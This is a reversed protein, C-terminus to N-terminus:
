NRGESQDTNYAHKWGEKIRDNTDLDTSITRLVFKNKHYIGNVLYSPFMTAKPSLLTALSVAVKNLTDDFPNENQKEIAQEIIIRETKPISESLADMYELIFEDNKFLQYLELYTAQLDKSHTVKADILKLSNSRQIETLLAQETSPNEETVEKSQDLAYLSRIEELKAKAVTHRANLLDHINQVTEKRLQQLYEVSFKNANVAKKYALVINKYEEDMGKFLSFINSEIAHELEDISEPRKITKM